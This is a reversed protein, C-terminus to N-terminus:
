SLLKINHSYDANRLCTTINPTRDGLVSHKGPFIKYDVNIWNKVM